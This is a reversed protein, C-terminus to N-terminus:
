SLLALMLPEYWAGFMLIVAALVLMLGLKKVGVLYKEFGQTFVTRLLMGAGAVVSFYAVLEIILLTIVFLLRPLPQGTLLGFPIGQTYFSFAGILYAPAGLILGTGGLTTLSVVVFNQTFTVTAATPISTAYADTAGTNSVATTLTDLVATRCEDPMRTGTVVGMTFLAGLIALTTIYLRKHERITNLSAAITKRLPSKPWALLALTALSLITFLIAAAPTQLWARWGTLQRATVADPLNACIEQLSSIQPLEPAGQATATTLLALLLITPLARTITM